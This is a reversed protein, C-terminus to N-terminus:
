KDIKGVFFIRRLSEKFPKVIAIIILLMGLIFFLTLPALSWIFDTKVGFVNAILVEILVCVAGLAILGGGFVYLKGHGVYRIVAVMATIILAMAGTLPLAFGLFWNGGTALCIYLLYLAAGVFGCPIFIVPNPHKFWSPLVTTIYLLLVGGAVYGSWRIESHWSLDLCIPLLLPILFLVTIVFVVSKRNFEESKFPIKPYTNKETVDFDPHYVRTECIPCTTQGESLEVGCKVCYM